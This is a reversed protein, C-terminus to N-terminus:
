TSKTMNEYKLCFNHMKRRFNTEKREQHIIALYVEQGFKVSCTMEM